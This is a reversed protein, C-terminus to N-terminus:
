SMAEWHAKYEDLLCSANLFDVFEAIIEEATRSEEPTYREIYVDAGDSVLYLFERAEPVLHFYFPHQPSDLYNGALDLSGFSKNKFKFDFITGAKLGDLIGFVLFEMGRVIISRSAKVQFQAGKVLGAIENAGRYWKPYKAYGMLEGDGYSSKNVTGDTSFEPSFKGTAIDMVLREFDHGNQINQQQEETLDEPERRLAHLFSQKADEEKDESCDYTYNWASILSQTILYRVM